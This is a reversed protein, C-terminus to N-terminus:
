EVKQYHISGQTKLQTLLRESDSSSDPEDSDSSESLPGPELFFSLTSSDDFAPGLAELFSSKDAAPELPLRAKKNFSSHTPGQESEKSPKPSQM